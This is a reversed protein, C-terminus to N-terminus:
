QSSAVAEDNRVTSPRDTAHLRRHRLGRRARRLPQLLRGHRRRERRQARQHRLRRLRVVPPPLAPPLGGLSRVLAAVRRLRARAFGLVAAILWGLGGAGLLGLAVWPFYAPIRMPEAQALARTFTLLM